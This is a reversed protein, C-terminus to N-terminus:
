GFRLEATLVKSRVLSLLLPRRESRATNENNNNNNKKEENVTSAPRARSVRDTSLDRVKDVNNARFFFLLSNGILANGSIRTRKRTSLWARSVWDTLFDGLNGVGGLATAAAASSRRRACARQEARM